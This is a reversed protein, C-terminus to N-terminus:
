TFSVNQSKESYMLKEELQFKYLHSCITNVKPTQSKSLMIVILNMKINQDSKQLFYDVLIEFYM